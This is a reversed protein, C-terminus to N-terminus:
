IDTNVNFTELFVAVSVEGDCEPRKKSLFSAVKATGLASKEVEGKKGEEKGKM